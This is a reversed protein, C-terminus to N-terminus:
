GAPQRARLDKRVRDALRATERRNLVAGVSAGVMLPALSPLNRATRKLIRETLERRLRGGLALDFTAPRTIDLGRRHTWAALYAAARRGPSGPPRCGYLEHLEALLKLEVTAVAVLEAALEAPMAPPVPLMAAAGVGAGVTASGKTAASVLRDAIEERGLGPFRAYLAAQDRVSVQSAAQVVRDTVVGAFARLRGSRAQPAWTTGHAPPRGAAPQAPEPPTRRQPSAGPTEPGGRGADRADDAAM